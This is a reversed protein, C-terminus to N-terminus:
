GRPLLRDFATYSAQDVVQQDVFPAQFATDTDVQVRYQMASQTGTEGTTAWTSARNTVYYDTWRFNAAGSGTSEGTANVALPLPNVAPSLKTFANTAMGAVPSPGCQSLTRCPRVFWYLPRDGEVDPYTHADNDLTPVYMTSSTAPIASEPELLNTFGGDRSVYVLYASVGPIPDWRLVPTTPVNECRAGTQGDSNLRADCGDSDLLTKADIALAQGTVPPLSSITFTALPGSALPSGAADYARVFWHYSGSRLFRKGTDTTAPYKLERQVM